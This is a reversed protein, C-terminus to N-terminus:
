GRQKGNNQKPHRGVKRNGKTQDPVNNGSIEGFFLAWNKKQTRRGGGGIAPTAVSRNMRHTNRARKEVEGCIAKKCYGGRNKRKGVTRSVGM